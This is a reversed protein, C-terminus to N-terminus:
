FGAIGSGILKAGILLCIVGMIVSNNRAMWARLNDLIRESREGMGFYIAIPVGPGITALFVFVAYAGAQKGGSIGTQAIAAAAAVVLLLNKPNVSSLLVALGAAKPARFGDITQMWSPMPAEEGSRPRGRWQKVALALLLIGLILELISVWTAPKADNSAGAGSSLLLVLAGVVSIGGIWGALFALANQRARPTALM